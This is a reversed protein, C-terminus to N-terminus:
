GVFKIVIVIVLVIFSLWLLMTTAYCGKNKQRGAEILNESLSRHTKVLVSNKDLQPKNARGTPLWSGESEVIEHAAQNTFEVAPRVGQALMKQLNKAFTNFQTDYHPDNCLIVVEGWYGQSTNSLAVFSLLARLTWGRAQLSLIRQEESSSLFAVKKGFRNVLWVRYSHDEQLDCSLTYIDGALNDAGMLSAGASRSLTEFRTYTSYCIDNLM